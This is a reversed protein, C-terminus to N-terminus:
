RGASVSLVASPARRPGYMMSGASWRPYEAEFRARDAPGLYFDLTRPADAVVVDVTRRLYGLYDDRRWAEVAANNVLGDLNVVRYRVHAPAFYAAAGANFYGLARIGPARQEITRLLPAVDSEEGRPRVGTARFFGALMALSAATAIVALGARAPPVARALSADAAVGALAALALLPVAAYWIVYSHMVLGYLLAHCALMALAGATLVIAAPTAGHRLRRLLRGALFALLALAALAYGLFLNVAQPREGAVFYCPLWLFATAGALAAGVGGGLQGYVSPNRLKVLASVQVPSGFTALNWAPWPLALLVAVALALAARRMLRARGPGAARLLLAGQALAAAGLVFLNDTRALWALGLVAGTRAWWAAGREAAAADAMRLLWLAALAASLAAEMGRLTLLLTFPSLLWAGAAWDAGRACGARRLAARLLLATLVDLLACLSLALHVPVWSGAGAGRAIAMMPALLALWLPHFGNTPALGDFTAGAGAAVHRAIQLYYFADDAVVHGDCWGAWVLALRLALGGAVLWAFARGGAGAPAPHEARDRGTM